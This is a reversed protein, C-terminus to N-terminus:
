LEIEVALHDHYDAGQWGCTCMTIKAVQQRHEDCRYGTAGCVMLRQVSAQRKCRIRQEPQGVLKLRRVWQCTKPEALELDARVQALEEETLATHPHAIGRLIPEVLRPRLESAPMLLLRRLFATATM